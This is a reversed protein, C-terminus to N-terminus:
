EAAESLARLVDQCGAIASAPLNGLARKELDGMTGRILKAAAEGPETLSVLVVRRDGASTSRAVYGRKQLRDLVSTMTSARVGAASALQSVARVGGDGLIAMANIEAPPLELEALESTLRQLTAHTARQLALLVIESIV